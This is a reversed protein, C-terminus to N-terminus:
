RTAVIVNWATAPEPREIRIGRFGAATLAAIVDDPERPTFINM